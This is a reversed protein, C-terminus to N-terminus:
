NAFATLPSIDNNRGWAARPHSPLLMFLILQLIQLAKFDKIALHPLKFAVDPLAKALIVFLVAGLLFLVVISFLSGM